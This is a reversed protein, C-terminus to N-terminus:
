ENRSRGKKRIMSFTIRLHLGPPAFQFLHIPQDTLGQFPYVGAYAVSLRRVKRQDKNIGMLSPPQVGSSMWKRPTSIILSDPISQFLADLFLSKNQHSKDHEQSEYGQNGQRSDDPKISKNIDNPIVEFIESRFYDPYNIKTYEWRQPGQKVKEYATV